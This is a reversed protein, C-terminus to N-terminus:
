QFLSTEDDFNDKGYIIKKIMSTKVLFKSLPNLQLKREFESETRRILMNCFSVGNLNALM